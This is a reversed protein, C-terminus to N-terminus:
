RSPSVKANSQHFQVHAMVGRPNCDAWCNIINCARMGTIKDTAEASSLPQTCGWATDPGLLGVCSELTSAARRNYDTKM